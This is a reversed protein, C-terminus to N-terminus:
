SNFMGNQSAFFSTIEKILLEVVEAIQGESLKAEYQAALDKDKKM